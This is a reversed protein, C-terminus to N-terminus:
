NKPYLTNLITSNIMMNKSIKVQVTVRNKVIKIDLGRYLTGLKISPRGSIGQIKRNEVLLGLNVLTEIKRYSSAQPIDIKDLIEYSTLSNDILLDLIKRYDKDGLVDLIKETMEINTLMIIKDKKRENKKLNCFNNLISRMIGKSGRGFFEVFVDNFNTFNDMAETITMGHKEFLRREVKILMKKGLFSEIENKLIKSLLTDFGSM